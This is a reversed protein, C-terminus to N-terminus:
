KSYNKSMVEEYMKKANLSEKTKARKMTLSSTSTISSTSTLKKMAAASAAESGSCM